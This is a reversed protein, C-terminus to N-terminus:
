HQGLPQADALRGPQAGLQDGTVALVAGEGRRVGQAPQLQIEGAALAFVQARDGLGREVPDQVTRRQAGEVGILGYLAHLLHCPEARESGLQDHDAARICGVGQVPSIVPRQVM